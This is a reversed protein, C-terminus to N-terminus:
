LKGHLLAVVPKQSYVESSKGEKGAWGPLIEPDRLKETHWFGAFAWKFRV